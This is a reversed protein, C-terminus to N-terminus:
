LFHTEWIESSHYKQHFSDKFKKKSREYFSFIRRGMLMEIAILFTKEDAVTVRMASFNKMKIKNYYCCWENLSLYIAEWNMPIEGEEMHFFKNRFLKTRYRWLFHFCCVVGRISIYRRGKIYMLDWKEGRLLKLKLKKEKMHIGDLYPRGVCIWM